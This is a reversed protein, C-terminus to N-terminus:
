QFYQQYVDYIHSVTIRLKAILAVSVKPVIAVIVMKQTMALAAMNACIQRAPDNNVVIEKTDQNVIADLPMSKMTALEM